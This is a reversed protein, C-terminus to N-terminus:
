RRPPSTSSRRPTCRHRPRGLPGDGIPRLLLRRRHAADGRAMEGIAFIMGYYMVVLIVFAILMGGFGAFDIGFNWGSFDGSIM